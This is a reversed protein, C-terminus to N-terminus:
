YGNTEIEKKELESLKCLDMRTMREDCIFLEHTGDVREDERLYESKIVYDWIKGIMFVEVWGRHKVAQRREIYVIHATEDNQRAADIAQRMKEMRVM